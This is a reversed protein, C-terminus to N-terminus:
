YGRDRVNTRQRSLAFRAFTSFSPLIHHSRTPSSSGLPPSYFLFNYSNKKRADGNQIYLTREFPIRIFSSFSYRFSKFFLIKQCKTRSLVVITRQGTRAKPARSPQGFSPCPGALTHALTRKAECATRLGLSTSTFITRLPGKM